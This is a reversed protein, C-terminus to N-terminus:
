EDPTVGGGGFHEYIKKQGITITPPADTLKLALPEATKYPNTTGPNGDPTTPHVAYVKGVDCLNANYLNEFSAIMDDYLDAHRAGAPTLQTSYTVAPDIVNKVFLTTEGKDLDEAHRFLYIVAVCPFDAVASPPIGYSVFGCLMSLVAVRLMKM